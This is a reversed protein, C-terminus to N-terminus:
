SPNSTQETAHWHWATAVIKDLDTYTRKWGLEQQAKSPDAILRAPDGARRPAYTLPVKKGSIREVSNIVEKVSFGSGTGLNFANGAKGSILHKLALVHASALDEVHVYDRLATGDPTDYDTGFINLPPVKGLVALCARPVLHTEPNHDEGIGGERDAGSANFFRLRVAKLSSAAELDTIMQEIMLKTRGYVSTPNKPHDEPIPIQEPNGYVAATSCFVLYPISCSQMAELVSIAGAVNNKYYKLPEKMSEGVEIFSAMHIVAKVHHEKMATVLSDTDLVNGRMFVRDEVGHKTGNSLDDFIIPVFNARTLARATHSGIYGAGGTVLVNM